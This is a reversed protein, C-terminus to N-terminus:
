GSVTWEEASGDAGSVSDCVSSGADDHGASKGYAIHGAASGASIVGCRVFEGIRPFIFNAIYGINVANFATLRTISPDLPLLIQRWRVGRLWFAAISAAMSLLVFEWRCEKLGGIFDEWKVGRFSFYLLVAAIALSGAYKLIKRNRDKM